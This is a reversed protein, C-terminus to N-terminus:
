NQNRNEGHPIKVRATIAREIFWLITFTCLTLLTAIGAMLTYGYGVAMGIGGAVWLGAATTLGQLKEQQFAIVGTGLFGIGVVIQSAVRLPDFNLGGVAAVTELTVERAVLVFLASGMSVLAYTRLGAGKGALTRELGLVGGFALALALTTLM